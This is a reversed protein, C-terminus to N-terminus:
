LKCVKVQGQAVCRPSQKQLYRRLLYKQYGFASITLEFRYGDLTYGLSLSNQDTSLLKVIIISISNQM